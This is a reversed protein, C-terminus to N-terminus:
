RLGCRPCIGSMSSDVPCTCRINWASIRRPMIQPRSMVGVVIARIWAVSRAAIFAATRSRCM